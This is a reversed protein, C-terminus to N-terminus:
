FRDRSRSGLPFDNRLPRQKRAAFSRVHHEPAPLRPKRSLRRFFSESLLEICQVCLSFRSFQTAAAGYAQASCIVIIGETPIQIKRTRSSYAEIAGSAQVSTKCTADNRRNESASPIKVSCRLIRRWGGVDDPPPIILHSPIDPKEASPSQSGRGEPLRPHRAGSAIGIGACPSLRRIL